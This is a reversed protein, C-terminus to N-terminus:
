AQVELTVESRQDRGEFCVYKGQSAHFPKRNKRNKKHNKKYGSAIKLVIVSGKVEIVLIGAPTLVVFDTEGVFKSFHDPLTISHFALYRERRESRAFCEFIRKESRPVKQSRSISTPYIEMKAYKQKATHLIVYVILFLDVVTIFM